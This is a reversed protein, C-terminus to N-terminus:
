NMAQVMWDSSATNKAIQCIWQIHVVAYFQKLMESKCAMVEELYNVVKFVVKRKVEFVKKKRGVMTWTCPINGTLNLANTTNAGVKAKKQKTVASTQKSQLLTKYDACSCRLSFQPATKDM